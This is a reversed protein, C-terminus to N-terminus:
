ILQQELNFFRSAIASDPACPQNAQSGIETPEQGQNMPITPLARNHPASAIPGEANPTQSIAETQQGTRFRM